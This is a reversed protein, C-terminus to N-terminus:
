QALALPTKPLTCPPCSFLIKDSTRSYSLHSWVQRYILTNLIVLHILPIVAHILFNLYILYYKVYFPDLRLATAEIRLKREYKPDGDPLSM